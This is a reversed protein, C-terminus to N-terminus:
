PKDRFRALDKQEAIYSLPADPKLRGLREKTLFKPRTIYGRITMGAYPDGTVLAYFDCPVHNETKRLILKGTEYKTGKVDFTRGMLVCDFPKPATVNLDPFINFHKCFAFEAALGVFDTEFSSQDGVQQDVIGNERDYKHRWESLMELTVLEGPDFVVKFM